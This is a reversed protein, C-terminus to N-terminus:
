TEIMYHKIRLYTKIHRPYLKLKKWFRNKIITRLHKLKGQLGGGVLPLPFSPIWPFHIQKSLNKPPVKIWECISWPHVLLGTWYLQSLLCSGVSTTSGLLSLWAEDQAWTLLLSTLLLEWSHSEEILSSWHLSL